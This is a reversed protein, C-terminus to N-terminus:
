YVECSENYYTKLKAFDYALKLPMTVIDVVTPEPIVSITGDTTFNGVEWALNTNPIDLNPLAAQINSCLFVAILSAAINKGLGKLLNM